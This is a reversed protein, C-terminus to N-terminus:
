QGAGAVHCGRPTTGSSARSSGCLGTLPWPGRQPPLARASPAPPPARACPPLALPRRLAAARASRAVESIRGAAEHRRCRRPWPSPREAPFCAAEGRRRRTLMGARGRRERPWNRGKWSLLAWLLFDRRRPSSSARSAGAKEGGLNVDESPAQVGLRSSEWM